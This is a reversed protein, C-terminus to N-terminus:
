ETYATVKYQMTEFKGDSNDYFIKSQVKAGPRINQLYETTQAIVVGSADLFDIDIELSSIEYDTTNEIITKYYTTWEDSSEVDKVYSLKDPLENVFDQIAIQKKATTSEAVFDNLEKQFKEDVTLGYKNYLEAVCVARYYYGLSWTEQINNYDTTSRYPIGDKQLSLGKMYTEALTKLEADEFQYDDLNGIADLEANVYLMDAKQQEAASMAVSTEESNVLTWRAELGKGLNVIFDADTLTTNKASNSCGCILSFSM